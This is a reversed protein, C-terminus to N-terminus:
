PETSVPSDCCGDRDGEDRGRGGGGSLPRPLPNLPIVAHKGGGRGKRERWEGWDIEGSM